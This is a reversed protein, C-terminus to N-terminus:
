LCTEPGGLAETVGVEVHPRTVALDQFEVQKVAPLHAAPIAARPAPAPPWGQESPPVLSLAHPQQSCVQCRPPVPGASRRGEGREVRPPSGAEGGAEGDLWPLLCVPPEPMHLRGRAGRSELFSGCPECM